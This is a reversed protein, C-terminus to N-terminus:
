RTPSTQLHQYKQSLAENGSKSETLARDWSGYMANPLIFWSVGFRTELEARRPEYIDRDVFDQLDDGVLAVIRYREAVWARRANKSRTAWEPRENRLLVHDPAEAFPLDLKILNRLTAAKTICHDGPTSCSRNSIYFIKIGAQVAAQLFERAGPILTATAEQMWREWVLEEFDAGDQVMRAQPYSNDLVTEDLDLIIAPPLRALIKADTTAQELAASGSKALLSPLQATASRYAQLANARYEASTQMWLVANLTERGKVPPFQTTNSQASVEPAATVCLFSLFLSLVFINLRM